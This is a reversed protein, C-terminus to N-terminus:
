PFRDSFGFAKDIYCGFGGLADELSYCIDRHTALTVGQARSYTRSSICLVLFPVFPTFDLFSAITM